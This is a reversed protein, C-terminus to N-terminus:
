PHHCVRPRQSPHFCACRLGLRGALFSIDQLPTGVRMCPDDRLLYSTKWLGAPHASSQTARSLLRYFPNAETPRITRPLWPITAALNHASHANSPRCPLNRHFAFHLLSPTRPWYTSNIFRQISAKRMKGKRDAVLPRDHLSGFDIPDVQLIKSM